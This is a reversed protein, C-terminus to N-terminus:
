PIETLKLKEIKLLKVNNYKKLFDSCLKILILSRCNFAGRLVYPHKGYKGLIDEHSLYFGLFDFRM